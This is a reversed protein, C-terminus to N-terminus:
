CKYFDYLKLGSFKGKKVEAFDELVVNNYFQFELHIIRLGISCEFQFTRKSINNIAQRLSKKLHM